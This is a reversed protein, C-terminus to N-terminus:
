IGGSGDAHSRSDTHWRASLSLYPEGGLTRQDHRIRQRGALVPATATRKDLLPGFRDGGDRPGQWREACLSITNQPRNLKSFALRRSDPHWAVGLLYPWEPTTEAITRIRRSGIDITKLRFVPLNEGPLPYRAAGSFDTEIFAIASSDPSWWYHKDSKFEAAFVRDVEGELIFQDPSAVFPALRADDSLSALWLAHDKIASVYKGDPSIDLDSISAVAGFSKLLRGQPSNM